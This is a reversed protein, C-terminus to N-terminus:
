AELQNQLVLLIQKQNKIKLPHNYFSILFDSFILCIVM